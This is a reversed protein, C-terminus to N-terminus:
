KIKERFEKFFDREEGGDYRCWRKTLSLVQILKFVDRQSINVTPVFYGTFYTRIPPITTKLPLTDRSKRGGTKKM